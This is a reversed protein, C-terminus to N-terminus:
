SLPGCNIPTIKSVCPIVDAGLRELGDSCICHSFSSGYLFPRGRKGIGKKGITQFCCGSTPPINKVSPHTRQHYNIHMHKGSDSPTQVGLSDTHVAHEQPPIVLTYYCHDTNPAVTFTETKLPMQGTVESPVVSSLDDMLEGFKFFEVDLENESLPTDPRDPLRSPPAVAPLLLSRANTPAVVRAPRRAPPVVVREPRASEREHKESICLGAWMCDHNRIERAERTLILDADELEACLEDCPLSLGPFLELNGDLVDDLSEDDIWEEKIEMDEFWEEKIQM